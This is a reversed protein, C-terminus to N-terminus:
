VNSVFETEFILCTKVSELGSDCPRAIFLTIITGNIVLLELKNKTTTMVIFISNTKSMDM